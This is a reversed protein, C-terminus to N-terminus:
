VPFRPDCGAHSAWGNETYSGTPTYDLQPFSNEPYIGYIGPNVIEPENGNVSDESSSITERFNHTLARGFDWANLDGPNFWGATGPRHGDYTATRKDVLNM